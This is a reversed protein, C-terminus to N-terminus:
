YNKYYLLKKRDRSLGIPYILLKSLNILYYNKLFDKYLDTTENMNYILLKSFNCIYNAMMNKTACYFIYTENDQALKSEIQTKCEM